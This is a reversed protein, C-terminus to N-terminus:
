GQPLAAPRTIRPADRGPDPVPGLPWGLYVVAVITDRDDLGCWQKVAPAKTVAGTGWYSNLGAATAALLLNQVGASVADRDEAQMGVSADPESQCGVVILVPSREYKSRTKDLVAPDTTGTSEQYAATLEGLTRRAAGTLVAFRWPQTRKHNPAWTAAECLRDVLAPDVSDDRMRLNTRRSRVLDLFATLEPAGSPNQPTDM